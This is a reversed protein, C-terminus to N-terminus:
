ESEVIGRKWAELFYRSIIPKVVSNTSEEADECLLYRHILTVMEGVLLIAFNEHVKLVNFCASRFTATFVAHVPLSRSFKLSCLM